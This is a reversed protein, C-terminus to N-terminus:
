EKNKFKLWDRNKEIFSNVLSDTRQIKEDINTSTLNYKPNHINLAISDSLQPGFHTIDSYNNLDTIEDRDLFFAVKVNNYKQISQIFYHIFNMFNDYYGSERTHHWYLASYSPFLFTYNVEPYKEINLEQLTEDWRTEMRKNMDSLILYSVGRINNIYQHKVVEESFESALRDSGINDIDTKMKYSLPIEDGKKFYLTMGIDAPIYQILTEYGYLYKLKNILKDEYLYRPYRMSKDMRAFLPMDINIVIDKVSDMKIYSYLYLMETMNMGGSSLKVPKCNPFNNRVVSMDLNQFMSSGLFVTNYDYHKALGGNVFRPNLIYRGNTNVRFQFFPDVIYSIAGICLLVVISSVIFVKLYKISSYKNKKDTM